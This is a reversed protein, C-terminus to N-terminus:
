VKKTMPVGIKQVLDNLGSQETTGFALLPGTAFVRITVILPVATTSGTGETKDVYGEFDAYEKGSRVPEVLDVLKNQSSDKV